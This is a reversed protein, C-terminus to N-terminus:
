ANVIGCSGKFSGVLMPHLAEEVEAWCSGDCTLAGHHGMAGPAQGCPLSPTAVMVM